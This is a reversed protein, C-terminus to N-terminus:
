NPLRSRVFKYNNNTIISYDRTDVIGNGDVDTSLYGKLFNYSDNNVGTYDRTDITGDQNVDGGFIFYYNDSSLGVNGFYVATPNGFSQSISNEAFSVSTASTTEISNRHKITIYYMGNYIAPINVSVDGTTSLPVDNISYILTSYSNADHLEVTIHDAVGPPWNPGTANYAQRMTGIGNYLGELLVSSLTLTKDPIIESINLTSPLGEGCSNLVKVSLQGATANIDFDLKVANGTGSITVGTGSYSWIYSTANVFEDISYPITVDGKIFTSSGTIPGANFVSSNVIMTVENSTAPNGNVCPLDSTMVVYVVDGNVPSYTYTTSTAVQVSNKFWQYTPVSGGSVPTPTFTVSTGACVNNNDPVISVSAPLAPTTNPSAIGSGPLSTLGDVTQTVTYNGGVTVTITATTESTSWLLSGTYDSATLTTTGDCNNKVTVTPAPPLVRSFSYYRQNLKATNAADMLYPIVPNADIASILDSGIYKV